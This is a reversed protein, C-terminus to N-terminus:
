FLTGRTGRYVFFKKKLNEVFNTQNDAFINGRCTSIVLLCSEVTVMLRFPSSSDRENKKQTEFIIEIFCNSDIM